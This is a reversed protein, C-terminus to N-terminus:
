RVPTHYREEGEDGCYPLAILWRPELFNAELHNSSRPVVEHGPNHEFPPEIGCARGGRRIQSDQTGVDGEMETLNCLAARGCPRVRRLTPDM